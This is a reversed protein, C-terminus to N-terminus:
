KTKLRAVGDWEKGPSNTRFEKCRKIYLETAGDSPFRKHISIFIKLAEDWKQNLYAEFGKAFADRFILTEDPVDEKRGMLEYLRIPKKKGKVAVLDL